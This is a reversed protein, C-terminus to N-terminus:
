ASLRVHGFDSPNAADAVAHGIFTNGTATTTALKTTTNWYVAAGETWAQAATKPLRWVGTVQAEFQEGQAATGLAICLLAGILYANGSVVGGTPATLTLVQGPQVFNKAM